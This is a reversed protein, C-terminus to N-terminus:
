GHRGAKAPQAALKEISEARAVIKLAAAIHVADGTKFAEALFFDRAEKSDLAEAPDFPFFKETM